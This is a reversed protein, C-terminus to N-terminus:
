TPLSASPPQTPVPVRPVPTGGAHLDVSIAVQLKLMKEMWLLVVVTPLIGILIAVGIAPAESALGALSCIVGLIIMVALLFHIGGAM